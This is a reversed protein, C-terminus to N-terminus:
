HALCMELMNNTIFVSKKRIPKHGRNPYTNMFVVHYKNLLHQDRNFPPHLLIQKTTPTDQSQCPFVSKKLLLLVFFLFFFHIINNHSRCM